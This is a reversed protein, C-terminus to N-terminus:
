GTHGPLAAVWCLTVMTTIAPTKWGYKTALVVPVFYFVVTAGAALLGNTLTLQWAVVRRYPSVDSVEPGEAAAAVRREQPTAKVEKAIKLRFFLLFLVLGIATLGAMAWFVGTWGWNAAVVDGMLPTGIISSVSAMALMIGMMSSKMRKPAVLAIGAYLAVSGARYGATSLVRGIIGTSFNTSKAIIVLGVFVATLAILVAYKIGIRKMLEGMPISVFIGTLGVMGAFLGLQSGNMSWAKMILPTVPTFSSIDLLEIFTAFMLLVLPILWARRASLEHPLAVEAAFDTM